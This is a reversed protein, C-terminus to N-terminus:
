WKDYTVAVGRAELAPIDRRLADEGLPNGGVQPTWHPTPNRSLYVQAGDKLGSNAVLPSVDRIQNDSLSLIKLKTLGSLPGVDSIQNSYLWLFTLETLDTLPSLDHIKNSGCALETLRTMGSVPALDTIENCGIALWTLRTLGTLPGIDEIQSGNLNLRTLNTLDALASVDGIPNNDLSLDELDHLDALPRIDGIRNLRLTLQQLNTCHELGTLDSIGRDPAELSTVSLLDQRALPGTSKGLSERVAAELNPDAFPSGARTERRREHVVKVGRAELKPIDESLAKESLPNGTVDVTDGEGLGPNQVLADIERILNGHLDLETLITLGRLPGIDRIRSNRLYLGTLGGLQALPTIDSVQSCLLELRFLNTCMALAGIDKIERHGLVICGLNSLEALPDLDTIPNGQMELFELQTLGRLPSIDSVQNGHITLLTLRMLKALASVETIQNDQLKLSTLNSLKSLPHIDNIRNKELHLEVLDTCYELGTLDSIGASSVDLETFRVGVLDEPHIEGSPKGIAERVAAELNPDPFLSGAPSLGRLYWGLAVTVLVAAAVAGVLRLPIRRLRQLLESPAKVPEGALFADLDACLAEASDYRDEPKKAVMKALIRDLEAPIESNLSSPKSAARHAIQYMLAMPTDAEFPPQGTLMEFLTVGLAYIDTRASVEAGECQEPAMYQPTGLMAGDATLRTDTYLAKALGFDLVRARGARDVMVNQPKIDRHIIDQDHAERLAEAVQRVIRVARRIEIQGEDKILGSLADGKVYEMAIFHQDADEGVAHITVINPHVLQAAVRAERQFRKVFARDESLREPLVKLAVIRNLSVEYAKYVVGMGGRGLEALIEYNGIRQRKKPDAGLGLVLLCRPCLGKLSPTSAVETGCKSCRRAGPM